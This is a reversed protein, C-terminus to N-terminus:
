ATKPFTVLPMSTTSFISRAGVAPSGLCPLGASGTTIREIRRAFYLRGARGNRLVLAPPQAGAPGAAEDRPFTSAPAPGPSDAHTKKRGKVAKQPRRYFLKM